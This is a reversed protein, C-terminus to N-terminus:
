SDEGDDAKRNEVWGPDVKIGKNPPSDDSWRFPSLSPSRLTVGDLALCGRVENAFAAM